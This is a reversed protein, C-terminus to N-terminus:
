SSLTYDDHLSKDPQAADKRRIGLRAKIWNLTKEAKLKYQEIDFLASDTAAKYTLFIALPTLIFIAMWM